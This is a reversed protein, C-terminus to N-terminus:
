MVSAGMEPELLGVLPGGTCAMEPLADSFLWCSGRGAGGGDAGCQSMLVEDSTGQQIM